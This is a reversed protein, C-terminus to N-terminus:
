NETESETILNKVIVVAAVNEEEEKRKDEGDVKVTGTGM